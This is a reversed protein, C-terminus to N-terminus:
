AKTTQTDTSADLLTRCADLGGASAGIGVILFDPSGNPATSRAPRRAPRRGPRPGQPPNDPM